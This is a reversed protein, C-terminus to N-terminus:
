GNWSGITNRLGLEINTKPKWKLKRKAKSIDPKRQKPDDQPLPM